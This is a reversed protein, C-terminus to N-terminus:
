ARTPQRMLAVKRDRRARPVLQPPVVAENDLALLRLSFPRPRCKSYRAKMGTSAHSMLSQGGKSSLDMPKQLDCRESVLALAALQAAGRLPQEPLALCHHHNVNTTERNPDPHGLSPLPPLRAHYLRPMSHLENYLEWFAGARGRSVAPCPAATCACPARPGAPSWRDGHVRTSGLPGWHDGAIGLSGWRDGATGM